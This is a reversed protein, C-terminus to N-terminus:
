KMALTRPRRWNRPETHRRLIRERRVHAALRSPSEQSGIQRTTAGELLMQDNRSKWRGPGEGDPAPRLARRLGNRLFALTRRQGATRRGEPRHRAGHHGILADVAERLPSNMGVSNPSVVRTASDAPASGIEGSLQAVGNVRVQRIENPLSLPATDPSCRATRRTRRVEM